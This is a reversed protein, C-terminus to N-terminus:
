LNEDQDEMEEEISYYRSDEEYGRTGDERSWASDCYRVALGWNSYSKEKSENFFDLLIEQAERLTLGNRFTVKCKGNFHIDRQAIWGNTKGVIRYTKM